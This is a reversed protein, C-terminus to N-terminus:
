HVSPRKEAEIEAYIKQGEETSLVDDWAKAMSVKKETAHKEVLADLRKEASGGVVTTTRGVGARQFSKGLETNHAKLAAKVGDRLKEDNIQEAMKLLAVKVVEDGPLHGLEENARAKFVAEQSKAIELELRKRDTDARKALDVLQPDHAKTFVTGDDATYVPKMEETRETASKALFASQGEAGLRSYFAKEADTLAALKQLKAVQAELAAKEAKEQDTMTHETPSPNDPSTAKAMGCKTCFKLHKALDTGCGKCALGSDKSVMSAGCEGCHAGVSETHAGCASCGKATKAIVIDDASKALDITAGEQAPKRVASIETIRFKTMRNRRQQSM